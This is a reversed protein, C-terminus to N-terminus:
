TILSPHVDQAGGGVWSGGITCRQETQDFLKPDNWLEPAVHLQGISLQLQLGVVPPCIESLTIERSFQVSM